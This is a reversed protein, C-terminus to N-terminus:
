SKGTENRNMKRQLGPKIRFEPLFLGVPFQAGVSAAGLLLLGQLFLVKM